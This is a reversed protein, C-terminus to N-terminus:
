ESRIHTEMADIDDFFRVKPYGPRAPASHRSWTLHVLAVRGDSAAIVIDDNDFRRGIVDHNINQLPHGPPLERRLETALRELADAHEPSNRMDFWPWWGEAERDDM